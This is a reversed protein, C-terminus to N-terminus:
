ETVMQEDTSEEKKEAAAKAAAKEAEKQAKEAEKKAKEEDAKAQEEANLFRKASKQEPTRIQYLKYRGFAGDNELLIKLINEAHHTKRQFLVQVNKNTYPVSHIGMPYAKKRIWRQEREPFDSAMIMEELTDEKFFNKLENELTLNIWEEMELQQKKEDSLEEAAADTEMTEEQKNSFRQPDEMKLKIAKQQVEEYTISTKTYDRSTYKIVTQTNSFRQLAHNAAGNKAKIKNQAKVDAIMRKQLFIQCRQPADDHRGSVCWELAMGNQTASTELIKFFAQNKQEEHELVIVDFTGKEENPPYLQWSKLNGSNSGIEHFPGRYVIDLILPDDKNLESLRKQDKIIVHVPTNLLYDRSKIYANKGAERSDSGEGKSLYMEDAYIECTVPDTETSAESQKYYVLTLTMGCSAAAMNMDAISYVKKGKPLSQKMHKLREKLRPSFYKFSMKSRRGLPTKKKDESKPKDAETSSETSKEGDVAEGKTEETAEKASTDDSTEMNTESDEEKKEEAPRLEDNSMLCIECVTKTMLKYYAIDFLLKRLLNRTNRRGKALFFAGLHLEGEVQTEGDECKVDDMKCQLRLDIGSENLSRQITNISGGQPPFFLMFEIFKQLNEEPSAWEQPYDYEPGMMPPRGWGPPPPPPGRFGFRMGPDPGYDFAPPGMRPRKPQWQGQFEMPRKGHFRPGGRGRGGWGRGAM